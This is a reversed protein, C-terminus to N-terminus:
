SAEKGGGSNAKSYAATASPGDSRASGASFRM